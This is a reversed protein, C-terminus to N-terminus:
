STFTLLMTLTVANTCAHATMPAIISGRWERLTALTMAIATLLPIGVWGQPHISAFIVGVLLAAAWWPLKARVHNYLAGRFM